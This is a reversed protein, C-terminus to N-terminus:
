KEEGSKVARVFLTGGRGLAGELAALPQCIAVLGAYGLNPVVSTKGRLRRRLPDAEPLLSSVWSASNDRLSFLKRHTIRFGSRAVVAELGARTYNVVHRPIDLGYWRSRFLRAQWSEMSPVQLFLQGGRPLAAHIRRLEGEPETLHELVHFMCVTDPAWRRLAEWNDRLSGVVVDLAYRRKAEAAAAPSFDQGLVQYGRQGMLFLFAGSSCGVDLIRTGPRAFRAVFRVHDALVWRRYRWELRSFWTRDSERYWYDFPYYRAIEADEPLPQLVLSGCATCRALSFRGLGTLRDSVMGWAKLGGQCAPCAEKM